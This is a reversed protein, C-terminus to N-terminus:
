YDQGLSLIEVGKDRIYITHELQSTKSNKECILPPYINIFKNIKLMDKNNYGIENCWYSNFPLDKRKELWSKLKANNNIKETNYSCHTINDNDYNINSTGTTAFTEIAFIEDEEMKMNEQIENPVCLILKGGHLKTGCINHGGIGAIPNIAIINNNIEIEYSKIVEQIIESIEYLRVDVGSAVIASYTADKTSEILPEYESNENDVIETFASDIICGDYIVGIDVKVIDDKYLIRNDYFYSTDHAAINNVSLGIPFAIGNLSQINNFYDLRSEKTTYKIINTEISEVINWYKTNNHLLKKAQERVLKHIVSAKYYNKNIKKNENIKPDIILENYNLDLNNLKWKDM